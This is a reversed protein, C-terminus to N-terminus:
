KEGPLGTDVEVFGIDGPKTATPQPVVITQDIQLFAECMWRQEYNESENVFQMFQRDDSYLPRAPYGNSKFWDFAYADRWLTTFKAQRAQAGDGYFDIQISVQVPQIIAVSQDATITRRNTSLRETSVANIMIFAGIPDPVGNDQALVVEVDCFLFKLFKFVSSLADDTINCTLDGGM